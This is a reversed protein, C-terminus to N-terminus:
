MGKEPLFREAKQFELSVIGEKQAAQFMKLLVPGDLIPDHGPVASGKLHKACFDQLQQITKNKRLSVNWRDRSIESYNKAEGFGVRLIVGLRAMDSREVANGLEFRERTERARKIPIVRM